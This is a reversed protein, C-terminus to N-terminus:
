SRGVIAGLVSDYYEKRVSAKSRNIFSPHTAFLIEEKTRRYLVFNKYLFGDRLAYADRIPAGFAIVIDVALNTFREDLEGLGALIEAKTPNRENGAEDFVTSQIVNDYLATACEIEAVVGDAM